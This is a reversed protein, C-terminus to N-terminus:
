AIVSDDDPGDDDDDGTDEVAIAGSAKLSLEGDEASARCDLSMVTRRDDSVRMECRGDADMRSSGPNLVSDLTLAYRGDRNDDEEGSFAWGATETIATFDIRHNSPFVMYAVGRCPVTQGKVTLVCPGNIDVVVPAADDGDDDDDDQGHAGAAFALSLALVCIALGFARRRPAPPPSPASQRAPM